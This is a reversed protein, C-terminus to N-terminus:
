NRTDVNFFHIKDFPTNQKQGLYKYCLFILVYLRQYPNTTVLSLDLPFNLKRRFM